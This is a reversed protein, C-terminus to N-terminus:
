AYRMNEDYNSRKMVVTANGENAPLIVEDELDRLEKSARRHDKDKPLLASSM